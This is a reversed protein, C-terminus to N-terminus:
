KGGRQRGGGDHGVRQVGDRGLYACAKVYAHLEVTCGGQFSAGLPKCAIFQTKPVAASRNDVSGGLCEGVVPVDGREEIGTPEGEHRPALHGHRLAVVLHM